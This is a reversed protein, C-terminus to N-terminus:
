VLHHNGETKLLTEAIAQMQKFDEKTFSNSQVVHPIGRVIRETGAFGQLVVEEDASEQFGYRERRLELPTGRLLMLPWAKIVPVRQKVCWNVTERFSQLTQNPLGYILSTEFHLQNAHLDQITKEVRSMNTPRNIEKWEQAHITQLGFELQVLATKSLQRCLSLYTENCM